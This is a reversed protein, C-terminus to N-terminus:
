VQHEVRIMVWEEVRRNGGILFAGRERDGSCADEKVVGRHGDRIERKTLTVGRLFVPAPARQGLIQAPCSGGDRTDCDGALGARRAGLTRANFSALAPLM